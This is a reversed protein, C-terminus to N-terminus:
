KILQKRLEVKQQSDCFAYNISKLNLQDFIEKNWGFTKHLELYEKNLNTHFFPPDDTSVSIPLGLKLFDDIPHEVMSKFLGLGLNSGPCVELMIDEKLLQKVLEKDENARVGHGIRKVGLDIAERVSDAGCIEGAHSTLGLDAMNAIDFSPQFLRTTFASENGAMGFGVVGFEKGQSAFEAAEIAKEPGLHRIAVIIFNCVIYHKEKFEMAVNRAIRLFSFWKECIKDGWLHPGLFIESYIINSKVQKYLVHRLLKEFSEESLFLDTVIEYVKLFEEFSDWKYNGEKDFIDPREKDNEVCIERVFDPEAAGELHLHLEVKKLSSFDNM